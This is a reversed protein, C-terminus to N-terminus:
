EWRERPRRIILFMATVASVLTTAIFAYMVNRTGTLKGQYKSELETYNGLLSQYTENLTNYATQLNEFEINKVYTVIFGAPPPSVELSFEVGSYVISPAKWKWRIIGYTLGPPTDNPVTVIQNVTRLGTLYEKEVCTINALSIEETENLRYINVYIHDVYISDSAEARVTVTINEGPNVEYPAEVSVRLGLFYEMDYVTRREETASGVVTCFGLTVLLTSLILSSVVVKKYNM